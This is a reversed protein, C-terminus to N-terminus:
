GSLQRRARWAFPSIGFIFIGGGVSLSGLDIAAQNQIHYVNRQKEFPFFSTILIGTNECYM